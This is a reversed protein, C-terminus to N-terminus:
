IVGEVALSALRESDIGLEAYIEANHEGLTPARHRYTIPSTTIRVFPGPFRVPQQQGPM